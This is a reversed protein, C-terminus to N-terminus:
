FLNTPDLYWLGDRQIVDFTVPDGSDKVDEKTTKGASDTVTAVGATITVTATTDGTSKKNLEIGSFSVSQYDFLQTPLVQQADALSMGLSDEITQPDMLALVAMINKTEMAGLFAAVAEEPTASGIATITAGTTGGTTDGTTTVTTDSTTTDTTDSTDTTETTDTTDSTDTTSTESTTTGGGLAGSLSTPDLYWKDDIKTLDFTVPETATKVDESTVKGANDKITVTGETITVTATTEGTSKTSTKIGSFKVSQYDMMVSRLTQKTAEMSMGGMADSLAKQDMLAFITDLDKDQMAMLLRSVTKEPTSAAGGGKIDGWFVVFVLACAIAVVLVGAVLSIWLGKRSRPQQPAYGPVGYPAPPPPAYAGYSPPAPPTPPAYGPPPPPAAPAAYTPAPAAYTPAPPAYSPPAAPAPATEGAVAGCSPCFKQEETLPKGCNVCFAM